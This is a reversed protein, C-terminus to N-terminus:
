ESFTLAEGTFMEKLEVCHLMRQYSGMGNALSQVTCTQSVIFPLQRYQAALSAQAENELALCRDLANSHDVGLAAVESAYGECYTEVNYEPLMQFGSSLSAASDVVASDSLAIPWESLPLADTQGTIAAANIVGYDREGNVERFAEFWADNGAGEVGTIFITTGPPLRPANVATEWNGDNSQLFPTARSLRFRALVKRDESVTEAVPSAEAPVPPKVVPVLRGRSFILQTEDASAPCFASQYTTRGADDVCKFVQGQVVPPMALAALLVIGSKQM